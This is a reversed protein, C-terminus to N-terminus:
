DGMTANPFFPLSRVRTGTLRAHANALAPALTPVGLEGVGGIARTRDAVAPAPMIVVNVTPMEQVRMMRSKNFNKSQAAGNVFTQKGWLAANIGHVVGGVIQADINGPSVPLYCDVAVTCKTIRMGTATVNAIEVVQAVITNFAMGIAIGRASGAPAPTGWGSANAAAELVALWRPDTLRARRFQYPDEGAALALEDIMSEIAFTNISAGVSRWFGVPIPSPHTVYETLRAGFNYPLAQSAEYGQSDGLAGLVVGRQALISPSVNRYVWGAIARNADLGARARV